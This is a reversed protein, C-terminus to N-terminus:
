ETRLKAKVTEMRGLLELVPIQKSLAFFSERKEERYQVRILRIAKRFDSPVIWSVTEVGDRSECYVWSDPHKWSFLEGDPPLEDYVHSIGYGKTEAAKRFLAIEQNVVQERTGDKLILHDVVTVSADDLAIM